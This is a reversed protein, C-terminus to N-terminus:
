LMGVRVTSAISRFSTSASARPRQLLRHHWSLGPPAAASPTHLIGRRPGSASRCPLAAAAHSPSAHSGDVSRGTGTLPQRSPSPCVAAASSSSCSSSTRHRCTPALQSQPQSALVSFSRHIADSSWASSGSSVEVSREPDHWVLPQQHPTSSAPDAFVLSTDTAAYLEDSQLTENGVVSCTFGHAMTVDSEDVDGDAVGPRMALALQVGANCEADTGHTHQVALQVVTEATDASSDPM